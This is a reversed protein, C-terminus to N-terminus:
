MEISLGSEFRVEVTGRAMPQGLQTSMQVALRVMGGQPEARREDVYADLYTVDGVFPPHRYQVNSHTIFGREGAWNGIYDLVWAGMSAGYGYARPVGILKAYRDQVHGRSPGRYLGDSQAPDIQAKDRDQSMEPLWGSRLTSTPRGDPANSGWVTFIYSRWETTFSQLSHPGIVGRPLREGERVDDFGRRVHDQFTAYYALKEREIRDLEEDTWEPERELDKLSQMRQANAVLYRISTSRQRAVIEGQQTVYTTDGRQFMTPGAFSTRAVKYDFCLRESRLKDGPAIRPGFFWWEDGGFLMHSGPITGQIAPTAGHGVDCCITFSQPAVFRGFLSAEAFPRSIYLPNPNQMGQAWRRIDTISVPEELQGGGVPQGVWRDVDTTDLEQLEGVQEVM